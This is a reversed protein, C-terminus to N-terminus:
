MARHPDQRHVQEVGAAAVDAAHDAAVDDGLRGHEAEIAVGADRVQRRRLAERRRGVRVREAEAHQDVAHDVRLHVREDAAGRLDARGRAVDGVHLDVAGAHLEVDVEAVGVALQALRLEARGLEGGPGRLRHEDVLDAAHALGIVAADRLVDRDAADRDM